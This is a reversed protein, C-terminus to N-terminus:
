NKQYKILEKRLSEMEKRLKDLEVEQHLKMAKLSDNFQAATRFYSESSNDIPRGEKIRYYSKELQLKESLLNEYDLTAEDLSSKLLLNRSYFFVSVGIFVLAIFYGM